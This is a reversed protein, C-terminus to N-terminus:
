KAQMAAVIDIANRRLAGYFIGYDNLYYGGFILSLPDTFGSAASWPVDVYLLSDRCVAGTLHPVLM